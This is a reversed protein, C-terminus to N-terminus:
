ERSGREQIKEPMEKITVRFNQEEGQRLVGIEVQKGPSISAVLSPLQIVQKIPKGDFSTILDGRQIGAREAPGGAIVESVLAG